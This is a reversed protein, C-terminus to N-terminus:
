NIGNEPSTKLSDNSDFPDTNNDDNNNDYKGAIRYGAAFLCM